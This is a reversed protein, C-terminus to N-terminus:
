NNTSKKERHMCILTRSPHCAPLRAQLGSHQLGSAPSYFLELKLIDTASPSIPCSATYQSPALSNRFSYALFGTSDPAPLAWTPKWCQRLEALGNGQGRSQGGLPPWSGGIRARCIPDTISRICNRSSELSTRARKSFYCKAIQYEAISSGRLFISPECTLISRPWPFPPQTELLALCSALSCSPMLTSTSHPWLWGPALCESAFSLKGNRTLSTGESNRELKPRLSLTLIGLPIAKGESSGAQVAPRRHRSGGALARASEAAPFTPQQLSVALARKHIQGKGPSRNHGLNHGEEPVTGVAWDQLRGYRM